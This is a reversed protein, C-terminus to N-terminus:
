HAHNRRLPRSHRSHRGNDSPRGGGADCDCDCDCDCDVRGITSNINNILKAKSIRLGRLGPKNEIAM